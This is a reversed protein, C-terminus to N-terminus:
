LKLQTLFAHFRSATLEEYNKKVYEGHRFAPSEPTVRHNSGVTGAKYTLTLTIFLTLRSMAIVHLPPPPGEPGWEGGSTFKQMNTESIKLNMKILNM